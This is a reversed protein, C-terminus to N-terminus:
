SQCESLSEDAAIAVARDLDAQDNINFFSLRCPDLKLREEPDIYRVKLRALLANVMLNNEDLQQKVTDVCGRAYVAHLPEVLRNELRPIVVDYGEALSIMYGLLETNLFPMDCAVIVSYPMKSAVLGTYIGGLPGRGAEIDPLMRVDKLFSLEEPKMATIILVEEALPALREVVREIMRKGNLVELAKNRGLRLNKGGALVIASVKM